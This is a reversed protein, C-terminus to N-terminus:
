SHGEPHALLWEWMEVPDESEHSAGCHCFGVLVDTGPMWEIRFLSMVGGECARDLRERDGQSM